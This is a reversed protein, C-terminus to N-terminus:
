HKKKRADKHQKKINAINREQFLEESVEKVKYFRLVREETVTDFENTILGPAAGHNKLLYVRLQQVREGKSGLKLPFDDNPEPPVEPKVVVSKEDKEVPIIPEMEVVSVEEKIPTPKKVKIPKSDEVITFEAEEIVEEKERFFLYGLLGLGLLGGAILFGKQITQESM